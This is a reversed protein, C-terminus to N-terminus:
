AEYVIEGDMITMLVRCDKIEEESTEFLNRDLVVVDALRGAELIGIEDERFVGYAPGATYDIIAEELSIKEGPNWGGLPEGDEHTRTVARYIEHMPSLSVVPFDTGFAMRAGRSKLSRIPWTYQERERGLRPLYPNDRYRPTPAMHEPQMSAIVGLDALRDLDGPHIVEIHEITHRSDRTGNTERAAEFCDLALRVAGDGCAHFRIRFEERDADITWAEVQDPPILTDGRTDPQDSYPEVLYATYTTPVGDLFQKLGSFQLRQSHFQERLERPRRLDGDLAALFHIRTTLKGEREFERYLDPDGMELGPIPLIDTVSTVGLRAANDLFNQVLKRQYSGPLGSFVKQALGMATENLVGTPVGDDDRVIEGFPPDETDPGIGLRELACSNLWAGHLEDNFLFVPRDPVVADLSERTPLQKNSWYVHYWRFGIVWERETQEEAYRRVMNACEHESQADILCLCDQSLSGVFLHLHFDNFGPIILRDGLDHVQTNTGVYRDIEQEDGVGVIWRGKIALAGSRPTPRCGSFIARSKLVLDAARDDHSGM